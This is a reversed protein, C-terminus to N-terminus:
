FNDPVPWGRDDRVTWDTVDWWVQTGAANPAGLAKEIYPIEAAENSNTNNFPLRRIQTEVDFSDDYTWKYKEPAPFLRPYGTRRFTTWAEASLPFNAIYKQTVIQELLTEQSANEDWKVGVKVRGECSFEPVYYDIYDVEKVTEKQLYTEM